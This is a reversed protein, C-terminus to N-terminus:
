IKSADVAINFQVNQGLLLNRIHATGFRQFNHICWFRNRKNFNLKILTSIIMRFIEIQKVNMKILAHHKKKMKVPCFRVASGFLM